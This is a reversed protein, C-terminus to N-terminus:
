MSAKEEGDALAFVGGHCLERSMKSGCGICQAERRADHWPTNNLAKVRSWSMLVDIVRLGFDDEFAGALGVCCFCKLRSDEMMGDDVCGGVLRMCPVVLASVLCEVNAGQFVGRLAWRQV